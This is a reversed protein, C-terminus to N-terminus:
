LFCVVLLFYDTNVHKERENCLNSIVFCANDSYLTFYNSISEGEDSEDDSENWINDPSLLNPLPRQYDIDSKKRM